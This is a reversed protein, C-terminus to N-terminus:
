RAGTPWRPHMERTGCGWPCIWVKLYTEPHGQGAQVVPEDGLGLKGSTVVNGSGSRAKQVSGHVWENPHMVIVSFAPQTAGLGGSVDRMTHTLMRQRADAGASDEISMPCTCM